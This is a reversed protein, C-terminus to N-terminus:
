PADAGDLSFSAEGFLALDGVAPLPLRAEWREGQRTMPTTKWASATFLGGSGEASWLSARAATPACVSFIVQGNEVRHEWSLEPRPLNGAVMKVFGGAAAIVRGYDKIGHGANPVLIQWTEGQLGPRYYNLADVTWYSDNAANVILKPQTIRDRYTYPDVMAALRQGEPSALKQQLGRRTYDDISPSYRGWLEIQHEMQAALNLNDYVMPMLAVVRPDAAATLWTTWGRKSAGTTIFRTPRVGWTQQGYEQIADMARMAAKTMPFLLPWSSDGTALLQEFTHAILDDERMGWLPQNPIQWIVAFTAGLTNALLQGLLSEEPGPQGGTILLIVLDPYRVQAPRIIGVTHQWAINQWTQSTLNLHVVGPTTSSGVSWAYSPDPTNVYELLGARAPGLLAIVLSVLLLSRRM